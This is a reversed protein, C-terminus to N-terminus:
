PTSIIHVPQTVHSRRLKVVLRIPLLISMIDSRLINQNHKKSM